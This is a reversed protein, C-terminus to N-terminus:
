WNLAGKSLGKVKGGPAEWPLPEQDSRMQMVKSDEPEPCCELRQAAFVPVAMTATLIMIGLWITVKKM